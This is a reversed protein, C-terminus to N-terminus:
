NEVKRMVEAVVKADWTQTSAFWFCRYTMCQPKTLPVWSFCNVATDGSCVEHDVKRASSFSPVRKLGKPPTMQQHSLDRRERYYYKSLYEKSTLRWDQPPTVRTTRRTNKRQFLWHLIIAFIKAVLTTDNTQRARSRAVQFMTSFNKKKSFIRPM